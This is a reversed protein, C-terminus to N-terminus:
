DGQFGRYFEKVVRSRIDSYASAFETPALQELRNKSENLKQQVAEPISPSAGSFFDKMKSLLISGFVGEFRSQEEERFSGNTAIEAAALWMAVDAKAEKVRQIAGIDVYKKLDASVKADIQEMVQKPVHPYATEIESAALWILARTRVLMSPHTSAVNEGNRRDSIRSLQSLFQGIDLQIHHGELGSVTKILTRAAVNADACGLAGIRDASIEKARQFIFYEVSSQSIGMPSHQLLFHGIEHAIVFQFETAELLNVLASSVRVLCEQNGSYYCAAQLESSSNVFVTVASRDVLLRKCVEDVCADLRPTINLHVEVSNRYFEDRVDQIGIPQYASPQDFKDNSFRVSNAADRADHLSHGDVM